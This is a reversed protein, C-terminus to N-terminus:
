LKNFNIDIKIIQINAYEINFQPESTYTLM